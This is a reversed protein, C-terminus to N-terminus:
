AHKKKLLFKDLSQYYEYNTQVSMELLKHINELRKAEFHQHELKIQAEIKKLHNNYSDLYESLNKRKFKAKELAKLKALEKLTTKYQIFANQISTQHFMSEYLENHINAFSWTPTSTDKDSDPIQVHVEQSNELCDIYLIGANYFEVTPKHKFQIERDINIIQDDAPVFPISFLGKMAVEFESYVTSISDLFPKQPTAPLVLKDSKLFNNLIESDKFIHHNHVVRLYKELCFRREELFRQNSRNHLGNSPLCPISTGPYTESLAQHLKRFDSYRRSVKCEPNQSVVTYTHHVKLKLWDESVLHPGEVYIPKQASPVVPEELVHTEELPKKLKINSNKLDVSEWMSKSLNIEQCYSNGSM